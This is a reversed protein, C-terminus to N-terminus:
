CGAASLRALLVRAGTVLARRSRAADALATDSTVVEMPPGGPEDLFELIRLDAADRGPRSATLVTVGDLEDLGSVAVDLVLVIPTKTAAYFCGLRAHLRRVAAPPDRWWGDPTTGVVNSADVVLTRREDTM